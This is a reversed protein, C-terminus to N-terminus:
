YPYKFNDRTRARKEEPDNVIMITGLFRHDMAVAEAAPKHNAEPVWALSQEVVLM